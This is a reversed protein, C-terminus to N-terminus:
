SSHSADFHFKKLTSVVVSKNSWHDNEDRERKRQGYFNKMSNEFITVWIKKHIYAKYSYFNECLNVRLSNKGWSQHAASYRCGCFTYFSFRTNATPRSIKLFASSIVYIKKYILVDDDNPHYNDAPNDILHSQSATNLRHQLRLSVILPM